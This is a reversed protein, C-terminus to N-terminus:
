KKAREYQQYQSRSEEIWMMLEENKGIDLIEIFDALGKTLDKLQGLIKERNTTLIDLMMTKDTAALRSMDRLGAGSAIWIRDDVESLGAVHKTLLASLIYPVHSTASVFDDHLEARLILPRSGIVRIIELSLQEIGPSTRMNRCLIFPQSQFLDPSAWHIGAHTGGSMPHGGIAEYGPPLQSMAQTIEVKTSGLDLLGCGRSRIQSLQDILRIITHVPTALIVLDSKIIGKDFEQYAFDIYSHELAFELNDANIDVGSISAVHSKLARAMSGGMLGLGVIAVNQESLPKM